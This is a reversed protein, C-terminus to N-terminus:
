NALNLGHPQILRISRVRGFDTFTLEEIEFGYRHVRRRLATAVKEHPLEQVLEAYTTANIAKLIAGMAVDILVDAQDTCECIYPKVDAIRYRLMAGAVVSVDDKTTLTQAPVRITTISINQANFVDVFPIKYHLGPLATRQYKGLRLVGANQYVDVVEFPLLHNWIQALLEWLRDFM